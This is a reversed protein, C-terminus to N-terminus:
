FHSAEWDLIWFIQKKPDVLIGNPWLDFSCFHGEEDPVEQTKTNNELYYKTEEELQWTKLFISYLLKMADSFCKM